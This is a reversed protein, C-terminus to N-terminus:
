EYSKLHKRILDKAVQITPSTQRKGTRVTASLEKRVADPDWGVWRGDEILIKGGIMVTKVHAAKARRLLVDPLPQNAVGGEVEPLSLLVVDAWNGEAISGIGDFGSVAAGARTAMDFMVGAPIPRVDLGPRSQIQQGLRLDQFVDEDDNMGLSDLGFGVPVGVDLFERLPAVGSGLRMNSSPNYVVQAGTEKMIEMDDRDAWVCHAGSFRESLMGIDQLRAVWSKGYTRHAYEAQYRTEMLHTHIRWGHRSSAESLEEMLRDSCWVPNWPSLQFRVEPFEESLAQLLEYYEPFGMEYRFERLDSSTKLEARLLSLFEQDDMFTIAHCDRIGLAFGCRIGSDRYAMAVKRSLDAYPAVPGDLYIHSHVTTTIGSRIQKLCAYLTDLYPDYGRKAESGSRRDQAGWEPRFAMEAIRTELPEDPQGMQFTTLGRGHSHANVFGPVVVYSPGGVSQAEPYDERLMRYRGIARIRGGEEYLAGDETLGTGDSSAWDRVLWGGHILKGNGSM